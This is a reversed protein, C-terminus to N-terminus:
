SGDRVSGFLPLDPDTVRGAFVFCTRRNFRRVQNEM